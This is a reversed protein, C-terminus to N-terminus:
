YPSKSPRPQKRRRPRDRHASRAGKRGVQLYGSGVGGTGGGGAAEGPGRSTMVIAIPDAYELRLALILHLCQSWPQNRFVIRCEYAACLYTGRAIALATRLTDQSQLSPQVLCVWGCCLGKGAEYVGACVLSLRM